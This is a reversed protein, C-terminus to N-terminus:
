PACVQLLENALETAKQDGFDVTKYSAESLAAVM